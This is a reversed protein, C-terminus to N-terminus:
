WWRSEFMGVVGLVLGGILDNMLLMRMGVLIDCAVQWASWCM